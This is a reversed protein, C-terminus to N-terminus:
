LTPGRRPAPSLDRVADVGLPTIRYGEEAKELLKQRVLFGLGSKVKRESPGKRDIRAFRDNLGVHLEDYSVPRTVNSLQLILLANPKNLLSALFEITRMGSKDTEINM